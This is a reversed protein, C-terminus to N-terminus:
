VCTGHPYKASQRAREVITKAAAGDLVARNFLWPGDALPHAGEIEGSEAALRLTKASIKLHLRELCAMMTMRTRVEDFRTRTAVPSLGLAITSAIALSEKLV